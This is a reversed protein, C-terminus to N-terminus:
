KKSKNILQNSYTLFADTGGQLYGTKGLVEGNSDVFVIFPFVGGNNYKGALEENKTTQEKSLKNKKLRPFDLKVPIIHKNAFQHFENTDFVERKWIICPKCWDSGSFYLMVIKHEKKSKLLATELDTTWFVEESNVNNDVNTFSFLALIFILGINKM